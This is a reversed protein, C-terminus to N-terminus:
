RRLLGAAEEASLEGARVRELIEARDIAPAEGQGGLATVIEDMRNRATNYAISLEGAVRQVNGRNRLLVEVFRLQDPTLRSIWGLDFAGEIVVGTEPSELRTVLLAGGSTPDRTLLPQVSRRMM